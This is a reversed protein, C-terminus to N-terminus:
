YDKKFFYRRAVIVILGIVVLLIIWGILKGPLFGGSASAGLVSNKGAAYEDIDAVSLTVGAVQLSAQAVAQDFDGSKGTADAVVVATGYAGAPFDKLDIVLVQNIRDYVGKNSNKFTYQQPVYVTVKANSYAKANNNEYRVKLTVEDGQKVSSEGDDISLRFGSREDSNKFNSTTTKRGGFLGGFVGKVSSAPTPTSYDLTISNNSNGSGSSTGDIGGTTTTTGTIKKEATFSPITDSYAYGGAWKVVARYYYVQGKTLPQLMLTYSDDSESLGVPKSVNSLCDDSRCLGYQVYLLPRDATNYSAGNRNYSVQVIASYEDTSITGDIKVTPPCGNWSNIHVPTTCAQTQPTQAFVSTPVIFSLTAVFLLITPIIKKM